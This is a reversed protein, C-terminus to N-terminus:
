KARGDEAVSADLMLELISSELDPVLELIRQATLVMLAENGTVAPSKVIREANVRLAGLIALAKNPEPTSM